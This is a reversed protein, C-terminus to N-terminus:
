EQRGDRSEEREHTGRSESVEPTLELVAAETPQTLDYVIVDAGDRWHINWVVRYPVVGKEGLLLRTLWEPAREALKSAWTRHWDELYGTGPAFLLRHGSARIERALQEPTAAMHWDYLGGRYDAMEWLPTGPGFVFLLGSHEVNFMVISAPDIRAQRLMETFRAVKAGYQDEFSASLSRPQAVWGKWERGFSRHDRGALLYAGACVVSAVWPVSALFHSSSRALSLLSGVATGALGYLVPLVLFLPKWSSGAPLAIWFLFGGFVWGACAMTVFRSRSSALGATTAVAALFLTLPAILSPTMSIRVVFPLSPDTIIADSLYELTTRPYFGTKQFFSEVESHAAAYGTLPGLLFPYLLSGYRVFLFACWGLGAVCALAPKGLERFHAGPKSTPGAEQRQARRSAAFVFLLWVTAFPVFYPRVWGILAVTCWAPWEGGLTRQAATNPNLGHALMLGVVALLLSDQQLEALVWFLQSDPQWALALGIAAASGAAHSAGQLGVLRLVVAVTGALGFLGVKGVIAAWTVLASRGWVAVLAATAHFLPPYLYASNTYRHGIEEPTPFRGHAHLWEGMQLTQMYVGNWQRPWPHSAGWSLAVPVVLLFAWVDPWSDTRLSADTGPLSGCRWGVILCATTTVILTLFGLWPRYAGFMAWPLVSAAPLAACGIVGWLVRIAVSGPISASVAVGPLLLFLVRWDWSYEVSVRLQKLNYCRPRGEGTRGAITADHCQCV